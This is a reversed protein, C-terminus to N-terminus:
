IPGHIKELTEHAGLRVGLNHMAGRMFGSVLLLKIWPYEQRAAQMLEIGDMEPLSLDLIILEYERQQIERLALRGNGTPTVIYGFEELMAVFLNRLHPDDDVILIRPTYSKM